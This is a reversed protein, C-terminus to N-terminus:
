TLGAVTLSFIWTSVYLRRSGRIRTDSAGMRELWGMM